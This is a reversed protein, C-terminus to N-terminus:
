LPRFKELEPTFNIPEKGCLRIASAALVELSDIYLDNQFEKHNKRLLSLETCGLILADAGRSKLSGSLAFFNETDPPLGRKIYGFITESVTAQEEDTLHISRIDAMELLRDYSGSLVTGETALIAVNRLGLYRCYMVTQRIINIIPVSSAVSISEYFYHATNCPIAIVDAGASILKTVEGRMYPTPDKDSRGLIFDTRDPTEAFSSLIINLHDQDKEAKTHSTLLEYFYVSSMPGLGGLIGLTKNM